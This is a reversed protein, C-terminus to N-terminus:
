PQGTLGSLDAGDWFERWTGFAHPLAPPGPSVGWSDFGVAQPHEALDTGYWHLERRRSFLWRGDVWRYDDLYCIAMVVWRQGVEHEARCYVRGRATSEDILDIEHGVIQHVSRYFWRLQPEILLRLAARGSGHRGLNVDPTFLSVWGDLDRADVALAYRIPLQGIASRAELAAVRDRLEDIVQGYRALM